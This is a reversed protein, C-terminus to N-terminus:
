LNHYNLRELFCTISISLVGIHGSNISTFDGTLGGSVSNNLGLVTIVSNENEDESTLVAVGGAVGVM